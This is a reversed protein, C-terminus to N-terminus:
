SFRGYMKEHCKKLFDMMEAHDGTEYFKIMGGNYETLWKAPVSLPAYGNSLLHGNAMLLGTRKNGDYFFQSRAFDLHIRYAQECSDSLKLIENIVVPFLDELEDAKPPEYETGAIGVQGSRFQGVELAEDKAIIKQVSCAIEKSIAFTDTKALEIVKEWGLIQQKLKDEDAIKHGGVTIGQLYTQVEPFTFPMGELAQVDFVLEAFIKKAIFLAKKKDQKM